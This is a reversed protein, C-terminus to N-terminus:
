TKEKNEWDTRIIIGDNIRIIQDNEGKQQIFLNKLNFGKIYFKLLM